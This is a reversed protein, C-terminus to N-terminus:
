RHEGQEEKSERESKFLFVGALNESAVRSSLYEYDFLMFYTYTVTKLCTDYLLDPRIVYIHV